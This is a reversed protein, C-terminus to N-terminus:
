HRPAGGGVHLFREEGYKHESLRIGHFGTQKLPDGYMLQGTFQPLYFRTREDFRQLWFPSEFSGERLATLESKAKSVRLRLEELKGQAWQPLSKEREEWIECTM